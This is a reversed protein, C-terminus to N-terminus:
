TLEDPCIRGLRPREVAATVIDHLDLQVHVSLCSGNPGGAPHGALPGGARFRRRRPGARASPRLDPAQDAGCGPLARPMALHARWDTMTSTRSCTARSASPPGSAVLPPDCRRPETGAAAPEDEMFAPMAQGGSSSSGAM